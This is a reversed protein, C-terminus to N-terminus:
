ADRGRGLMLDLLDLILFALLGAALGLLFCAAARM